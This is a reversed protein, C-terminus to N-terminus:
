EGFAELSLRIIGMEVDCLAIRYEQHFIEGLAYGDEISILRGQRPICGGFADEAMYAVATNLNIGQAYDDRRQERDKDINKELVMAFRYQKGDYIVSKEEAFEDLNIFVGVDAAVMEKFGM